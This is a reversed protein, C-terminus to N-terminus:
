NLNQYKMLTQCAHIKTKFNQGDMFINLFCKTTDFCFIRAVYTTSYDVFHNKDNNETTNLGNYTDIIKSIAVCINWIVKPTSQKQDYLKDTIIMIIKNIHDKIEETPM